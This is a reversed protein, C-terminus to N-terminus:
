IINYISSFLDNFKSNLSKLLIFNDRSYNKLPDRYPKRLFFCLYIQPILLRAIIM